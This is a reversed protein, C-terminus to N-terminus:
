RREFLVPAVIVLQLLCIVLLLFSWMGFSLLGAGQDWSFGLFAWIVLLTLLGARAWASRLGLAGYLILSDIGTIACLILVLEYPYVFPRGAMFPGRWHFGDQVILGVSLLWFLLYPIVAWRSRRPQEDAPIPTPAEYM